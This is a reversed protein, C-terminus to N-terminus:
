HALEGLQEVGEGLQDREVESDPRMSAFFADYSSTNPLRINFPLPDEAFGEPPEDGHGGGPHPHEKPFSLSSRDTLHPDLHHPHHHQFFQHQLHNSFVTEDPPPEFAHDDDNTPHTDFM